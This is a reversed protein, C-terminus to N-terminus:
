DGSDIIMVVVEKGHLEKVKESFKTPIYIMFRDRGYRDKGGRAVSGRFVIVDAGMDM